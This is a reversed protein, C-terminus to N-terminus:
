QEDTKGRGGPHDQQAAKLKAIYLRAAQQLHEQTRRVAYEVTTGMTMIFAWDSAEALLV